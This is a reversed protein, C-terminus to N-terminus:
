CNMCDGNSVPVSDTAWPVINEVTMVIIGTAVAVGVALIIYPVGVAQDLRYNPIMCAGDGRLIISYVWDCFVSM